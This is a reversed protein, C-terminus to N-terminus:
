GGDEEHRVQEKRMGLDFLMEDLVVVVIVGHIVM